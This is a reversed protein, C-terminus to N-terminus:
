GRQRENPRTTLANLRIRARRMLEYERGQIQLAAATIQRDLLQAAESDPSDPSDPNNPKPRDGDSRQLTALAELHVKRLETLQENTMEDTRFPLSGLEEALYGAAVAQRLPPELADLTGRLDACRWEVREAVNMLLDLLCELQYRAYPDDVHPLVTETVSSVMGDFIRQLSNQIV